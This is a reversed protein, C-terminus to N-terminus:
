RRAPRADTDMVNHRYAGPTFGLLRKFHNTFHSQDFFGVETAAQDIALGQSILFKGREVRVQTQYAHPPIGVEMRFVRNLHFASLHVMRALDELSISEAHHADLYERVRRVLARERKVDRWTAPPSAHFHVIRTLMDHFRSTSELRSVAHELGWQFRVFQAALRPDPTVFRPFFPVATTRNAMANAMEQVRSLPCRMCTRMPQDPGAVPEFAAGEGPQGLILAGNRLTHSAGRYRARVVGAQMVGILLDEHVFTPMAAPVPGRIVEGIGDVHWIRIEPTSVSGAGPPYPRTM